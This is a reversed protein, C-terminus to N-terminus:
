FRGVAFRVAFLLTQLTCHQDATTVQGRSSSPDPAWVRPQEHCRCKCRAHRITRNRLQQKSILELTVAQVSWECPKLSTRTGHQLKM